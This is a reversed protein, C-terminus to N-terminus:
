EAGNQRRMEEAKTKGKDCQRALSYQRQKGIVVDPARAITAWVSPAETREVPGWVIGPVAVLWSVRASSRTVLTKPQADGIAKRAPQNRGRRALIIVTGM